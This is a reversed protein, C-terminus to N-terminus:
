KRTAPSLFAKLAEFMRDAIIENGRNGFHYADIFITEESSKQDFLAALNVFRFNSARLTSLRQDFLDYSQRFYKLKEPTYGAMVAQENRSLAKRSVPLTPQLFFVYPIKGGSLAYTGIAVNKKLREAVLVPSLNPRLEDVGKPLRGFGALRFSKNMMWWFFEDAMTRFWFVNDGRLGWHVDNNGSFSIVMDPDWESLRNEIMIREHTSAWASSAMTFVEYHRKAGASTSANLRNELYGAITEEDSPAGVSLATSGGTLFIRFVGPPKPLQLERPSRLQHANINASHYNGPRPAAGVFPVPLTPIDWAYTNLESNARQPDKYADIVREKQEVTLFSGMYHGTAHGAVKQRISRVSFYYGATMGSLFLFIISALTLGAFWRKQASM